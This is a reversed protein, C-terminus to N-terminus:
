NISKTIPKVNTRKVLVDECWCCTTFSTSYKVYNHQYSKINKFCKRVLKDVKNNLSDLSYNAVATPKAEQQKEILATLRNVKEELSTTSTATTTTSAVIPSSEKAQLLTKLREIEEQQQVVLKCCCSAPPDEGNLRHVRKVVQDDDDDGVDTSLKRKSSEMTIVSSAM